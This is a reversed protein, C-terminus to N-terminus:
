LATAEIDFLFSHAENRGSTLALGSFAHRVDFESSSALDVSSLHDGTYADKVAQPHEFPGGGATHAEWATHNCSLLRAPVWNPSCPTRSIRIGSGCGSVTWDTAMVGSPLFTTVPQRSPTARTQFTSVPLCTALVALREPRM